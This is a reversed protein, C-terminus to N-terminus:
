GPMKDFAKLNPDIPTSEIRSSMYVNVGPKVEATQDLVGARISMVNPRNSNRGFMQSGCDPCFLKEMDSGSDSKHRYVKPTGKIQLASEDVFLLTGYAAGTAARCDTCHCNAMLKIDTDASFTINGCLCKGSLKTM